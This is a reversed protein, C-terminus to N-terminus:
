SSKNVACENDNIKVEEKKLTSSQVRMTLDVLNKEKQVNM